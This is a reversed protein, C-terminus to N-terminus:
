TRHIQQRYKRSSKLRRIEQKLKENELNGSVTMERTLGIIILVAGILTFFIAAGLWIMSNESFAYNIAFVNFGLSVILLGWAIFLLKSTRKIIKEVIAVSLVIIASNITVLTNISKIFLDINIADNRKLASILLAYTASDMQVIPEAIDEIMTSDNFEITIKM